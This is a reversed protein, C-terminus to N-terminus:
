YKIIKNLIFTPQVLSMPTSAGQMQTDYSFPGSAPVHYNAGSAVLVDSGVAHAHQALEVVAMKHASEGGYAGLANTDMRAFRLTVGNATQTAAVNLTVSSLSPIGNVYAGAPIGTGFVLSYLGIVSSADAPSIGDITSTSHLNGTRVVGLARSPNSGGMNERGAVIQGRLDPLNFSNADLFGYTTGLVAFLAAYTTRSLSQGFCFLWGSPEVAGAFDIVSGVPM